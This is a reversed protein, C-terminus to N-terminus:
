KVGHVANVFRQLDFRPNDEAMIRTLGDLVSLWVKYTDLATKAAEKTDRMVGAFKIYDKKTMTRDGKVAKANPQNRLGAAGRWGM